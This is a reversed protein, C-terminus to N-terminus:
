PNIQARANKFAAGTSTISYTNSGSANYSASNSRVKFGNALKDAHTAFTVANGNITMATPVGNLWVFPGDASANGTFSGSTTITTNTLNATCLSLFGTPPTYAFPRQGFNIYAVSQVVGNGIALINFSGSLGTFAVGQSVNNKLFEITGSDQDFKVGIIDGTTFSAGYASFVGTNNKRGDAYYTYYAGTSNNQVGIYLQTGTIGATMEFYWKGSATVFNNTVSRTAGGAFVAALNAEAYTAGGTSSAARLFDWTSFNNSPTDDMWDYSVGATLSINNATWNNGNGSADATLTSLSTGNSFPLYFGNTGYSSSPRLPDRVGNPGAYSYNISTSGDALVPEALYGDFYNGANDRGIYHVVTNNWNTDTNTISSRTDTSYASVETGDILIKARNAATSNAVDLEFGVDVYWAGPDRFVPTTVLRSTGLVDLCLRNSTDFYFRDISATGASAIVQLTGLAGSKVRFRMALKKRDGAVSPTRSLSASGSARFRVSKEIEYAAAAGSVAPPFIM